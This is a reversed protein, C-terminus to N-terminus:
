YRKFKTDLNGRLAMQYLEEATKYKSDSLSRMLYQYPIGRYEPHKTYFETIVTTYATLDIALGEKYTYRSYKEVSALCRASPMESPHHEDGLRYRKGTGFLDQAVECAGHSGSSDGDIYGVVYASREAPSWSLWEEGRGRQEPRVQAPVRIVMLVLLFAGIGALYKKPVYRRRTM